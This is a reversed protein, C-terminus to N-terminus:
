RRRRGRGRGGGLLGREAFSTYRTPGVIIHDILRVGLLRSADVFHRTLSLDADSPNVNDTPHNHMIAIADAPLLVVPKFALGIDISASTLTGRHLIAFGIVEFSADLLLVGFYEQLRIRPAIFSRMFDAMDKSTRVKVKPGKGRVTACVDIALYEYKGVQSACAARAEKRASASPKAAPAARGLDILEGLTGDEMYDVVDEDYMGDLIITEEKMPYKYSAM